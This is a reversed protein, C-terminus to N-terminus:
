TVCNVHRLELPTILDKSVDTLYEGGGQYERLHSRYEEISTVAKKERM